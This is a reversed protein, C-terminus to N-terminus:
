YGSAAGILARPDAAGGRTGDEGIEILNAHGYRGDDVRRVTHGRAALGDWAGPAAAELEVPAGADAWTDFGTGSAIRWRPAAMAAGPTEGLYLLRALIQLLAQPQADGGQTGLVARLSGDPRTVLAPALTHPPRRGPRYEAPHGEVLNFGLGRNHLGIGTSPEFLGSGFGSANSQILSVGTGEGDVACLYTTGGPTTLDALEARRDRRVLDRRAAVAADTLLAALDADEHLADPRDHGAVRASEVLLHAWDAASADRPLGLGEAVALGLLTLYGQSNAPITWVDHGFVRRGLPEVWGAVPKLDAEAFEGGGVRLLGRGFEGGYFAERGGEAIARLTRAVGPRRVRAGPHTASLLDAAGEAGAVRPLAAVLLPSAPFGEEAYRIADAFLVPLPLRGFRAHLEAWGDVCGPVTVARVDGHLPMVAHGEARLRAPDAGSGARGSANLAVPAGARQHVLAFLDGGMGCLHPSTVSLVANAALAADAASGGARLASVGAQAALQDAACVMAAPAYVTM